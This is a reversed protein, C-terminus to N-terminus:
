DGSEVHLSAYLLLSGTGKVTELTDFYGLLHSRLFSAIFITILMPMCAHKIRGAGVSILLAGGLFIM